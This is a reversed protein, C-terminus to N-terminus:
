RPSHNLEESAEGQSNRKSFDLALHEVVGMHESEMKGKNPWASSEWDISDYEYDQQSPANM